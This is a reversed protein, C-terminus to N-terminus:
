HRTFIKRLFTTNCRETSPSRNIKFLASKEDDIVCWGDIREHGVESKPFASSSPYRRLAARSRKLVDILRAYQQAIGVHTMTINSSWTLPIFRSRQSARKSMSIRQLLMQECACLLHM